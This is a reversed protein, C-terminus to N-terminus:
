QTRLVVPVYVAHPWLLRGHIDLYGTGDRWHEWAVLNGPSGGALAPRNRNASVGASVIEYADTMVGATDLMRGWIGTNSFADQQEWAVVYRQGNASCAAAPFQEDIIWNHVTLVSGASGDGSVFRAFIDYNGNTTFSNWLVIYQDQGPCSAVAPYTEADPWGAITFEGGGVVPTGDGQLLVGFIDFGNDYTVLYENRFNNYATSHNTRPQPLHSAVTFPGAPFGSGDASVRIGSIYAPETTQINTWTVLFEDQLGAFVVQPDWQNSAWQNIAFEPQNSDPGNWPIFRGYVDWDSGNGYFDYIWVVLYQDRTPDYAVSALSHDNPSNATGIKFDDIVAGQSSVRSAWVERSPGAWTNHWVVLYESHHINYAIAPAYQTNQLASIVLEPGLQPNNGGAAAPSLQGSAPQITLFLTLGALVFYLLARIAM